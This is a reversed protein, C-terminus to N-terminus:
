WGGCNALRRRLADRIHVPVDHADAAYAAVAFLEKIRGRAERLDRAAARCDDREKGRLADASMDIRTAVHRIVSLAPLASM